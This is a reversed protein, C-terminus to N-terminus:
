KTVSKRMCLLATIEWFYMGQIGGETVSFYISGGKTNYYLSHPTEERSGGLIVCRSNVWSGTDDVRVQIEVPEGAVVTVQIFSPCGSVM